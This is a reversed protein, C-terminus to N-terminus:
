IELTIATVLKSGGYIYDIAEDLAGNSLSNNIIEFTTTRKAVEAKLLTFEYYDTLGHHLEDKDTDLWGRKIALAGTSVDLYNSSNSDINLGFEVDNGSKKAIIGNTGKFAIKVDLAGTETFKLIPNYISSVGDTLSLASINYKGYITHDTATEGEGITLTGIKYVGDGSSFEGTYVVKLNSSYAKFDRYDSASLYGSTTASAPPLTIKAGNSISATKFPADFSLRVNGIGQTLSTTGDVTVTITTIDDGSPVYVWKNVGNALQHIILTDGPEVKINNDSDPVVGSTDFLDNVSLKFATVVKYYGNVLSNNKLANEAELASGIAGEFKLAGTAIGTVQNIKDDVYKKNIISTDSTGGETTVDAGLVTDNITKGSLEAPIDNNTLAEGTVATVRGYKDVTISKVIQSVSTESASIESLDFNIINNDGVNIALTGLSSVINIPSAAGDATYFSIPVGNVRLGTNIYDLKNYIDDIGGSGGSGLKAREEATVLGFPNAVGNANVEGALFYRSTLAVNGEQDLVLEGRTIPLITNNLWDKIFGKNTAM